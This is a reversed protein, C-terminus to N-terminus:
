RYNLGRLGAQGAIEILRNFEAIEADREPDRAEIIARGPLVHIMELDVGHDAAAQRAELLSELTLPKALGHNADIHSVGHRTVAARSENLTQAPRSLLTPSCHQCAPSRSPLAHAQTKRSATCRVLFELEMKTFGFNQCGVYM